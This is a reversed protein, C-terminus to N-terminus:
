MQLVPEGVGGQTDICEHMYLSQYRVFAKPSKKPIGQSVQSSILTSIHKHALTLLQYQTFDEFPPPPQLSPCPNLCIECSGDQWLRCGRYLRCNQRNM